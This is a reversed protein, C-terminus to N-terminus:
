ATGTRINEVIYRYYRHLPRNVASEHFWVQVAQAQQELGLAAFPPAGPPLDYPDSGFVRCVRAAFGDAIFGLDSHTNELQWTHVLEHVFTGGLGKPNEYGGEGLNVTFKGDFRPFVFPADGGGVTDTLIIRDRPPLTGKFVQQDAWGYEDASIEREKSGLSAVGEAALAVLTGGPGALWLTGGIIRAGAALGGTAILSGVEVGLTLVLLAGPSLVVTGVVWRALFTAADELWDSVDGKSNWLIELDGNQFEAFGFGVMPEEYTRDWDEDRPDDSTPQFGGGHGEYVAAVAINPSRVVVRVRFSHSEIGPNHVHGRFRVTGALSITVEVWGELDSIGGFDPINKRFAVVVISELKDRL